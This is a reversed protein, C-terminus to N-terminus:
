AMLHCPTSLVPIIGILTKSLNERAPVFLSKEAPPARLGEARLLDTGDEIWCSVSQKSWSSQLSIRLSYPSCTVFAHWASWGFGIGYAASCRSPDHFRLAASSLDSSFEWREHDNSAQRPSSKVRHQAASWFWEGVSQMESEVFLAAWFSFLPPCRISGSLTVSGDVYGDRQALERHVRSATLRRQDTRTWGSFDNASKRDRKRRDVVGGSLSESSASSKKVLCRRDCSLCIRLPSHWRPWGEGMWTAIKVVILM